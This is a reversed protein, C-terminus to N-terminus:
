RQIKLKEFLWNRKIIPMESALSFNYQLFRNQYESIYSNAVKPTNFSTRVGDVNVQNGLVDYIIIKYKTPKVFCKTFYWLTGLLIIFFGTVLKDTIKRMTQNEVPDKYASIV